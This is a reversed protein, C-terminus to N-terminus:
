SLGSDADLGVAERHARLATHEKAPRPTSLLSPSVRAASWSCYGQEKAASLCTCMTGSTGLVHACVGEKVWLEWRSHM